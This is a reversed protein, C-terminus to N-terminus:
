LGFGGLLIFVVLLVPFACLMIWIAISLITALPGYVIMDMVIKKRVHEWFSM